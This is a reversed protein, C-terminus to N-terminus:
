AKKLRSYTSSSIMARTTIFENTPHKGNVLQTKQLKCLFAGLAPTAPRRKTM